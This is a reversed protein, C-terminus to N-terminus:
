GFLWERLASVQPPGLGRMGDCLILEECGPPFESGTDDLARWNACWRHEHLWTLINRHRVYPGREDPGLVGIVRNGVKPGLMARLVDLSHHERWTSSIVIKCDSRELASALMPVLSFDPVANGQCPHLVGDFDLM